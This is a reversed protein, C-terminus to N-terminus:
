RRLAQLLRSDQDDVWEQFHTKSHDIKHWALSNKLRDVAIDTNLASVAEKFFFATTYSSDHVLAKQIGSSGNAADLLGLKDQTPCRKAVKQLLECSIGNGANVLTEYVQSNVLHQTFQLVDGEPVNASAHIFVNDIFDSSQRKMSIELARSVDADFAVKSFAAVLVGPQAAAGSQAVDWYPHIKEKSVKNLFSRDFLGM